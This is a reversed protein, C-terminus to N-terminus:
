MSKTTIECCNGGWGRILTDRSVAVFTRRKVPSVTTVQTMMHLPIFSGLESKSFLFPIM